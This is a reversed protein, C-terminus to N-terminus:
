RKKKVAILLGGSKYRSIRSRNKFVIDFGNKEMVDKVGLMDADDTKTECLCVVDYCKIFDAFDHSLFKAKFGCVNLSLLNVSLSPVIPTALKNKRM